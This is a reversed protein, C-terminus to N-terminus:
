VASLSSFIVAYVLLNFVKVQKLKDAKGFFKRDINTM